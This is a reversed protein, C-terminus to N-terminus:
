VEEWISLTIGNYSKKRMLFHGRKATLAACPECVAGVGIAKRVFESCQFKHEVTKIEERDVIKVVTKYHKAAEFIGVEYQKVDVTAFHLISRCDINLARLAEEVANIIAESSTGAKCGIGIIISKPILQVQYMNDINVVKNTIYITGKAEGETVINDPLKIDINIDSEIRVLENNVILATVNKANTMSSIRCDLEEALTDVAILGNVDSATTIVPQGGIKDALLKAAKNAGGLHGSLLSIIFQGREDMVLIGPDTTKDVIYKAISRVVIGTAMIFLIIDYSYFVSGIFEDLKKNITITEEDAWKELTYIDLSIDDLLRKVKKAQQVGGKTLTVVAWNM